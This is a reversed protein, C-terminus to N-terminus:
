EPMITCASVYDELYWSYTLWCEMSCYCRSYRAMEEKLAHKRSHIHHRVDDATRLTRWQGQQGSYVTVCDGQVRMRTGEGLMTCLARLEEVLQQKTTGHSWRGAGCYFSRKCNRCHQTNSYLGGKKNDHLITSLIEATGGRRANVSKCRLVHSNM